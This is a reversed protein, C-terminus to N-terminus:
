GLTDKVFKYVRFCRYVMGCMSFGMCTLFTLLFLLVRGWLMIVNEAVSSLVM